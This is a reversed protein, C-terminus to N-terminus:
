CRPCDDCIDWPPRGCKRAACKVWPAVKSVHDFEPEARSQHDVPLLEGQQKVKRERRPPLHLREFRTAQEVPIRQGILRYRWGSQLPWRLGFVALQKNNPQGENSFRDLWERTIEFERM